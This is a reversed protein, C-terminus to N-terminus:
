CDPRDNRNYVEVTHYGEVDIYVEVPSHLNACTNTEIIQDMVTEVTLYEPPCEFVEIALSEWQDDSMSRLAGLVSYPTDGHPYESGDYLEGPLAFFEPSFELDYAM